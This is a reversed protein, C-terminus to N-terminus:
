THEESRTGWVFLDFGAATRSGFIEWPGWGAGPVTKGMGPYAEAFCRGDRAVQGRQGAVLVGAPLRARGSIQRQEREVSRHRGGARSDRTVPSRWREGM